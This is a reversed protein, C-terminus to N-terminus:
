LLFVLRQMNLNEHYRNQLTWDLCATSPAQFLPFTKRWLMPIFIETTRVEAYCMLEQVVRINVGNEM